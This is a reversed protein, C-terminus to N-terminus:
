TLQVGAIEGIVVREQQGLHQGPGVGYVGVDGRQILSDLLHGGRVGCRRALIGPMLAMAAQVIRASIPVSM